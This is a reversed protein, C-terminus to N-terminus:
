QAAKQAMVVRDRGAMDQHCSVNSWGYKEFLGVVEQRQQWGIEVLIWGAPRLWDMAFEAYCDYFALGQRGAFLAQHPEFQLVSADLTAKEVEGIYPPNSLILDFARALTPDGLTELADVLEFCVNAGHRYQNAQAVQLAGTSVDWAEVRRGTRLSMSIALCGTGTGIDLMAMDESEAEMALFKQHALNLLIETDPRPILTECSVQFSRGDFDAEGFIHALPEGLACRQLAVSFADIAVRPVEHEPYGLITVKQVGASSSLLDMVLTSVKKEYSLEQKGLFEVGEAILEKITTGNLKLHM